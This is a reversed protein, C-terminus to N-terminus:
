SCTKLRAWDFPIFAIIWRDKMTLYYKAKEQCHSPVTKWCILWHCQFVSLDAWIHRSYSNKLTLSYRSMKVVSDPARRWARELSTSNDKGPKAEWRLQLNLLVVAKMVRDSLLPQTPGNSVPGWGKSLQNIISILHFLIILDREGAPSIPNKPLYAKISKTFWTEPEM